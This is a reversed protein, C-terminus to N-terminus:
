KDGKKGAGSTYAERLLDSGRPFSANASDGLSDSVSLKRVASEELWDLVNALGPSPGDMGGQLSVLQELAKVIEQTRASTEYRALYSELYLLDSTMQLRIRDLAGFMQALILDVNVTPANRVGRSARNAQGVLRLRAEAVNVANKSNQFRLQLENLKRRRGASMGPLPQFTSKSFERPSLKDIFASIEKSVDKQARKRDRLRRLNGDRTGFLKAIDEPRVTAAVKNAYYSIRYRQSQLFDILESQKAVVGDVYGGIAKLIEAENFGNEKTATRRLEELMTGIESASKQGESVAVRYKELRSEFEKFEKIAQEVDVEEIAVPIEEKKDSDQADV